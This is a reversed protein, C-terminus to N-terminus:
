ISGVDSVARLPVREVMEIKRSHNLHKSLGALCAREVDVRAFGVSNYKKAAAFNDVRLAACEEAVFSDGLDDPTAM